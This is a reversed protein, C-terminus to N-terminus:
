VQGREKRFNAPTVGLWRKFARNFSSQEAFGTLFAVESLSFRADGLMGIALEKRTTEALTQFSVGDDSLRRHLSRSSMGLRRAIDDMKPQGESLSRAILDRIRDQLQSQSTVQALEQELHTILFQTIGQDGLKNPRDLSANAFIIGDRDSNFIVPCDFYDRHQQLTPPPAHTLHVEQARLQGDPSVERGIAIASALTAENSLRMGLRRPGHRHLNFWTGADTRESSYEVVNTWLRAFRAVRAYSDRLTPAAKFALGLAGYDDCRMSAGTRLPLATADTEAAIRELLEYYATAAVMAKPDITADASLGVSALLKAQDLTSAAVMKRVFLSTVFDM